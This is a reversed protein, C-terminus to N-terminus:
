MGVALPLYKAATVTITYRSGECPAKCLSSGYAPFGARVTRLPSHRLSASNRGSLGALPLPAGADLPSAVAWVAADPVTSGVSPDSM